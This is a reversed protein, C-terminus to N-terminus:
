QLLKIVRCHCVLLLLPNNSFIDGKQFLVTDVVGTNGKIAELNTVSHRGLEAFTVNLKETLHCCTNIVTVVTHTHIFTKGDGPKITHLEVGMVAGSVGFCRKLVQVSRASQSSAFGLWVSVCVSM